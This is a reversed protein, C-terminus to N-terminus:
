GSQYINWKLSQVNLGGLYYRYNELIVTMIRESLFGIFRRQYYDKLSIELFYKSYLDFLFEFQIECIRNHVEKHCIILNANYLYNINRLNLFHKKQLIFNSDLLNTAFDLGETGHCRIFQDYTSCTFFTREPIYINKEDIKINRISNDNWFRRYHTVSLFECDINKWIFYLATLEAFTYNLYSINSGEDDFIINQQRLNERLNEPIDIAANCLINTQNFQNHLPRSDKTFACFNIITM